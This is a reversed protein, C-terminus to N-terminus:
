KGVNGRFSLNSCFSLDICPNVIKQLLQLLTCVPCDSCSCNHVLFNSSQCLLLAMFYQTLSVVPKTRAGLDLETPACTTWLKTRAVNVSSLRRRSSTLSSQGLEIRTNHLSPPINIIKDFTQSNITAAFDVVVLVSRNREGDRITSIIKSWFLKGVRHLPNDVICLTCGVDRIGVSQHSQQM